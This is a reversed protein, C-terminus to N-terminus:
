ALGLRALDEAPESISCSGIGGFLDMAGADEAQEISLEFGAMRLRRDSIEMGDASDVLLIQATESASLDCTWALAAAAAVNLFGHRHVGLEADWHRLPEHLGATFKVPAELSCAQVIFRALLEISPFDAAELGGCRAKFGIEEIASAADAMDDAMRPGWPLELYVDTNADLLDHAKKKMARAAEAPGAIQISAADLSLALEADQAFAEPGSWKRAVLEIPGDIEHKPELKVALPASILFGSMLEGHRDQMEAFEDVAEDLSLSAPPFLGAYDFIGGLLLEKM